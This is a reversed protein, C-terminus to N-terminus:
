MRTHQWLLSVWAGIAFGGLLACSSPVVTVGWTVNLDMCYNPFAALPLCVCLRGHGSYMEWAERSSYWSHTATVIEKDTSNFYWSVLCAYRTGTLELSLVNLVRPRSTSSFYETWERMSMQGEDQSAVDIFAITKRSGSHVVSVTTHVWWTRFQMVICTLLFCSM